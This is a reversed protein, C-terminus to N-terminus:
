FEIFEGGWEDVGVIEVDDGVQFRDEGDDEGYVELFKERSMDGKLLIPPREGLVAKRDVWVCNVGGGPSVYFSEMLLNQM